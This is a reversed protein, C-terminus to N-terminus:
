IAYNIKTYIKTDKGILFNEDGSNTYFKNNAIDYMGIIKDSKRYCPIFHRIINNDQWIIFEFIKTNGYAIKGNNNLAFLYLNGMCKFNTEDSTTEFKNDFYIGNKSLEIEHLNTDAQYASAYNPTAGFRMTWNNADGAIYCANIQSGTRVGFPYNAGISKLQFKTYIKTDQNPVVETDIYQHKDSEIFDVQVYDNPLKIENIITYSTTTNIISNDLVIFNSM